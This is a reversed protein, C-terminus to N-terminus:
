LNIIKFYSSLWALQAKKLDEKRDINILYKNKVEYGFIKKGFILGYKKINMIEFFYMSGSRIFVDDLNQRNKFNFNRDYSKFFLGKKVMMRSPHNNTKHVTIATDIKKKKLKEYADYYIKKERFPCTPQLILIHTFDKNKKIEYKILDIMLSNDTALKKPRKSFWIKTKDAIKKAINSDSSIITKDIFSLKKSFICSHELLTYNGVKLFNKNKIGKSGKRAPIIALVKM